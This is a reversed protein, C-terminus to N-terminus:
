LLPPPGPPPPATPPPPPPPAGCGPMGPKCSDGPGTGPGSVGPVGPKASRTAMTSFADRMARVVFRVITGKDVPSSALPENRYVRLSEGANLVAPKERPLIAHEVEVVGEEVEITTAEGDDDVSVDFTTGRVSIVATPTTVRNPNPQGGLHEIHVRVRGVWVDLLDRWNFPVKRFTVNSNPYVEFTSGDSVQFEAHGDPGTIIVQQTQVTDGVSVAWPRSDKLVSVQGTISIAKAAYNSAETPLVQALSVTPCVVAAVAMLLSLKATRMSEGIWMHLIIM